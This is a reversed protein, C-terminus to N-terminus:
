EGLFRNKLLPHEELLNTKSIVLNFLTLHGKKLHSLLIFVVFYNAQYKHLYPQIKIWQSNPDPESSLLADSEKYILWASKFTHEFNINQRDKMSHGPKNEWVDNAQNQLAADTQKWFDLAREVLKKAHGRKELPTFPLLITKETPVNKFSSTKNKQPSPLCYGICVFPGMLIFLIIRPQEICSLTSVIQHRNSLPSLTM